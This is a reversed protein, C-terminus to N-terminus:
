SNKWLLDGEGLQEKINDLIDHLEKLVNQDKAFKIKLELVGKLWFLFDKDNM